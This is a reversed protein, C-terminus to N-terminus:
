YEKKAALDSLSQGQAIVDEIVGKGNLIRVNAWCNTSRTAERALVEARPAKAEDMYYRDFPIDLRIGKHLHKKTDPQWIKRIGKYRTKLYHGGGPKERSWDTFRIFGDPGTEFLAYIPEHYNLDPKNNEPCPIYDDEFQLRVYRGQYPDAPDIPRTRLKVLEGNRLINEKEQIMKFPVAIQVLILIGLLIVSLKKM